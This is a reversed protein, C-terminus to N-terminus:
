ENDTKQGKRKRSIEYIVKQPLLSYLVTKSYYKIFELKSVHLKSKYHTKLMRRLDYNNAYSRKAFDNKTLKYELLIEPLNYLKYGMSYMTIWLAYDECRKFDPYGGCKLISERKGLVTPHMIPCGKLLDNRTIEGTLNTNGWINNNDSYQINAGLIDIDKHKEIFEFQTKLREPKAYDDTDMRAIYKTDSLQLAKNLSYVLGMNQTNRYVKIRDDKYKSVIKNVDNKSCDDIIIFIFDRYTQEVISKISRELLKRDTNYESMIVTIQSRNSM